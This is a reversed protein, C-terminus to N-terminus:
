NLQAVAERLAVFNPPNGPNELVEIYKVIGKKDLVVVARAAVLKMGLPFKEFTLGYKKIIKKNFDSLLPFTFSNAEKFKALTFPSDVSIGLIQANMSEYKQFNDRADCMQATCVGTFAAPFFNLVVNKGRFDSLKVEKKEDSFLAFDPAKKGVQLAM